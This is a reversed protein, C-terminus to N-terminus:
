GVLDALSGEGTPAPGVPVQQIQSFNGTAPPPTVFTEAPQQQVVTPGPQQVITTPGPAVVTPPPNNVTTNNIVTPPISENRECALGNHNGDLYGRYWPNNQAVPLPTHVAVQICTLRRTLPTGDTSECAIGDNDADLYTRYWISTRPIDVLGQVNLLEACTLIRQPPPVTTPVPTPVVGGAVRIFVTAEDCGDGEIAQRATITVARCAQYTFQDQGTFNTTPQYLFAGNASLTVAGHTANTLIKAILAGGTTDTDNGLVGPAGINLLQNVPTSYSDDHAVPDAVQAADATGAGWWTLAASVVVAGAFVLRGRRNRYARHSSMIWRETTRRVDVLRVAANCTAEPTSVGPASQGSHACWLGCSGGRCSQSTPYDLVGM